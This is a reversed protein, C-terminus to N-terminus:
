RPMKMLARGAVVSLLKFQMRGGLRATNVEISEVKVQGVVVNLM